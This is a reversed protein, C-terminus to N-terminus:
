RSALLWGFFSRPPRPRHPAKHTAQREQLVAIIHEHSHGLDRLAAYIAGERVSADAMQRFDRDLIRKTEQKDLEAIRANKRRLRELGEKWQQRTTPALVLTDGAPSSLLPQTGM